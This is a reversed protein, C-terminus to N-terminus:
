QEELFVVYFGRKTWPIWKDTKGIVGKSNEKEEIGM